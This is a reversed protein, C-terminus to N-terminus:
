YKEHTPDEYGFDPEVEGFDINKPLDLLEVVDVDIDTDLNEIKEIKSFDGLLTVIAYTEFNFDKAINNSGFKVYDKDVWDKVLFDFECYVTCSISLGIEISIHEEGSEILKLDACGNALTLYDFDNFVSEVDDVEYQFGSSADPFLDLSSIENPLISNLHTSLFNDTNEIIHKSLTSAFAYLDNQPQFIALAQGLDGVVDILSSNSGFDAWDPDTSVALIKKANGDTAWKEMSLLAIADPFENKKKGTTAFPPIHNFYNEVIEQLTVNKFPVVLAGTKDLFSKIKVRALDETKENNGILYKEIKKLAEEDVTLYGDSSKIAKNVHKKAEDIKEILHANIENVIVESLIFKTPSSKFQELKKLLGKEFKIGLQDFISTDITITDYEM